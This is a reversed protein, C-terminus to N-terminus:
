VSHDKCCRCALRKLKENEDDFLNGRMGPERVGGGSYGGAGHRRRKRLDRKGFDAVSRRLKTSPIEDMSDKNQNAGEFMYYFQLLEANQDGIYGAENDLVLLDRDWDHDESNVDRSNVDRSNVDRSSVDRSSVDRSNVDRSNVDRSNVDRSSVDSSSVDSSSVDRSSVDSSNVDRSSVDRSNVDESSWFDNHWPGDNSFDSCNSLIDVPVDMCIIGNKTCTQNLWETMNKQHILDRKDGRHGSSRYGIRHSSKRIGEEM